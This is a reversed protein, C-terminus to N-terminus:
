VGDRHHLLYRTWRTSAITCCSAPRSYPPEHTLDETSGFWLSHYFRLCLVWRDRRTGPIVSVM